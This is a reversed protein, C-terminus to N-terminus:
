VTRLVPTPVYMLHGTEDFRVLVSGPPTNSSKVIVGSAGSPYGYLPQNLAIAMGTALFGATRM